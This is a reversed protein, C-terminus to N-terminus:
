HVVGHTVVVRSGDRCLQRAALRVRHDANDGEDSAEEREGESHDGRGHHDDPLGAALSGSARQVSGSLVSRYGPRGKM